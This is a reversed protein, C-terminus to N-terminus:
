DPRRLAALADRDVIDIRRRGLRVIGRAALAGLARSVAERSSGLEDALAQHTMEVVDGNRLIAAAIRADLTRFAVDDVLAMLGALREAIAHFVLCRFESSQLVSEIFVDRPMVVAELDSEVQGRGPYPCSGLLCIVTLVCVDGPLVRYLLIERASETPRTVRITGGLLMILGEAAGGVEVLVRGAPAVLLSGRERMAGALASPLDHLMGYTETLRTWDDSRLM